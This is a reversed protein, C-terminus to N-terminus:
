VRMIPPWGSWRFWAIEGPHWNVNSSLYDRQLLSISRVHGDACPPPANHRLCLRRGLQVEPLLFGGGQEIGEPDLQM